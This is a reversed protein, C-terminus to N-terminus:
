GDLDLEYFLQVTYLVTNWMNLDGTGINNLLRQNIFNGL